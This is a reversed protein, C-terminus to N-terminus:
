PRNNKRLAQLIHDVNESYREQRLRQRGASRRHTKRIEVPRVIERATETENAEAFTIAVMMEGLKEWLSM